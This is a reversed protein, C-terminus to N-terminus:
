QAVRLQKRREKAIYEDLLKSATEEQAAAKSTQSKKQPAEEWSCWNKLAFNATNALYKKLMSGSALTDALMDKAQKDETPHIRFWEHVDARPQGIFDAFASKSPVIEYGNNEVDKLFREFDALVEAASMGKIGETLDKATISM